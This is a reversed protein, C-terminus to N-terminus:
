DQEPAKTIARRASRREPKPPPPGLVLELAEDLRSVLHLKLKGRVTAPIEVLEPGNRQPIVAESVGVTYAGLLKEKIGGIPLISGRLTIEGTMAVDRRVTRGTLASILAAAITIGASPGDKPTAGEPVHIHVDIKEFRRPEIGLAVANARAYSLATQASEQMVEGLSGTLTLNGKGEMLVVEVPMIDGGAGTYAMGIALGVQDQEELRSLEFRPPGLLEKALRPTIVRPYPRREAIRRATKRCIAGLERELGRVGAEFTYSRIITRLTDATFRLRAQAVGNAEQQRPILFRRAIQLKEHETYGPLEILEVRDLLTDPVDDAHTASTIFFVNSLDFPLDLYSDAFSRNLDPDLVDLLMDALPGDADLKDIEDLMFVPNLAGSDRIRQIIRGPTAGPLSRAQGHIEHTDALGGLGLRVFPRSLAAAISRGLSTKGVGPPGVLCVIPLRQSSGALQQVAIFELVRDKVKQLGYHHADLAAAAHPLDIHADALKGWPLALVWELYAYLSTQEPGPAPLLELRALEDDVRARALAPLQALAARERLSLLDPRSPRTDLNAPAPDEHV